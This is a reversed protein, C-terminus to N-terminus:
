EKAQDTQNSQPVGQQFPVPLVPGLLPHICVFVLILIPLYFARLHLVEPCSKTLKRKNELSRSWCGNQAAATSSAM